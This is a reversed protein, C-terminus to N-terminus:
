AEENGNERDLLEEVPRLQSQPIIVGGARGVLNAFDELDLDAPHDVGKAQCLEKADALLTDWKKQIPALVKRLTEKGLFGEITALRGDAFPAFRQGTSSTQGGVEWLYEYQYIEEEYHSALVTLEYETPVFGHALRGSEDTASPILYKDFANWIPEHLFDAEPPFEGESTETTHPREGSDAPTMPQESLEIDLGPIRTPHQEVSGSMAMEIAIRM